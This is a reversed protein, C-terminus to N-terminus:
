EVAQHFEPQDPDRAKVREYVSKMANDMQDGVIGKTGSTPM